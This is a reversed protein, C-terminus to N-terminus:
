EQILSFRSIKLGAENIGGLDFHIWAITEFLPLFCFRHSFFFLNLLFSRPRTGPRCTCAGLIRALPDHRHVGVGGEGGRPWASGTINIKEGLSCPRRVTARADVRASASARSGSVMYPVGVHGSLWVALLTGLKQSLPPLDSKKIVVWVIRRIGEPCSNKESFRMRGCKRCVSTIISGPNKNPLLKISFIIYTKDIHLISIHVTGIRTLFKVYFLTEYFRRGSGPRDLFFKRHKGEDDVYFYIAM